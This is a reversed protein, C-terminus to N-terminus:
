NKRVVSRLIPDDAIADQAADGEIEPEIWSHGSLGNIRQAGIRQVTLAVGVDKRIDRITSRASRLSAFAITAHSASRHNETTSAHTLPLGLGCIGLLSQVPSGAHGKTDSLEPTLSTGPELAGLRRMREHCM